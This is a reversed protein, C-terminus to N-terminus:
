LTKLAEKHLRNNLLETLSKWFLANVAMSINSQPSPPLCIEVSLM